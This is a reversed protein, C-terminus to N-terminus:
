DGGASKVAEIFAAIPVRGNRIDKDQVIVHIMTEDSTCRKDRADWAVVRGTFKRRDEGSM